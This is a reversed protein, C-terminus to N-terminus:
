IYSIHGFEDCSLIMTVPSKSLVELWRLTGDLKVSRDSAVFDDETFSWGGYGDTQTVSKSVVTVSTGDYRFTVQFAITAILTDGDYFSKIRTVTKEGFYPDSSQVYADDLRSASSDLYDFSQIPTNKWFLGYAVVLVLLTVAAATCICAATKRSRFARKEEPTVSVLLSEAMEEVPGFGRYLDEMSPSPSEELYSAALGDFRKLLRVKVAKTCPLKRSLARRYQRIAKDM